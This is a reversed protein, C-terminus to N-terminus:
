EPSGRYVKHVPLVQCVLRVPLVLPAKYDWLELPVRRALLVRRVKRVRYKGLMQGCPVTGYTVMVMPRSLTSIVPTEVLLYTALLLWQVLLRSVLVMRVLLARRVQLVKHVLQVLLVKRVWKERHGRHVLLVLRVLLFVLQM